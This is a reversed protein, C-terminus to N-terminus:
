PQVLYALDHERLARVIRARCRPRVEGGELLKRVSRPDVDATAAVRLIDSPTVKHQTM